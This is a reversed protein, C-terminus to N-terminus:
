ASAAFPLASALLSGGGGFDGGLAGMGVTGGLTDFGPMAAAGALNAPGGFMGGLPMLGNRGFLTNAGSLAGGIGQATQNFGMQGLQGSISSANQGLGMYQMLDSIVQQPLAFQNNGINVAGSLLNQLNGLGSVANGGITAGTSYPAAGISALSQALSTGLNNAQGLGSGGASLLSGIGSAGLRGAEEQAKLAQLVNNIQGMYTQTPLQASGYALNTAGSYLPSTANAAQIQRGLQQNQWNIDMNGLANSTASAGYPTGAIGSMANVANSQDLLQQQTRGFLAAQPDFGATNIAGAQNMMSQAGQGGFAAGQAAGTMAQPYLPNSAAASVMQGYYPSFASGALDPIYGLAGGAAGALSPVQGAISGYMPLYNNYANVASGTAQGAFPSNTLYLDTANFGTPYLSQAQPWAWGGPTGAGANMSLGALPNVIDGLTGAAAGQGPPLFVNASGGGGSGGGGMPGM